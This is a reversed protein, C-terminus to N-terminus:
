MALVLIDLYFVYLWALRALVTEDFPEVPGVTFNYQVCMQKPVRPLSCPFPVSRHPTCYTGNEYTTPCFYDLLIKLPKEIPM